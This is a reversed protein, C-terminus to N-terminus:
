IDTSRRGGRRPGIQPTRRDAPVGLDTMAFPTPDEVGALVMRDRVSDFQLALQGVECRYLRCTQPARKHRPLEIGCTPCQWQMDPMDAHADDFLRHLDTCTHERHLRTAVL